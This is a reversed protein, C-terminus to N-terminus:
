RTWRRPRSAPSPRSPARNRVLWPRMIAGRWWWVVLVLALVPPVPRPPRPPPFSALMGFVGRNEFPQDPVAGAGEGVYTTTAEPDLWRTQDPTRFRATLAAVSQELAIVSLRDVRQDHTAGTAFAPLWDLHLPVSPQPQLAHIVVPTFNDFFETRGGDALGTTADDWSNVSWPAPGMPAFVHRLVADDIAALWRTFITAGPARVTSGNSGYPYYVNGDWARLRALAERAAPSLAPAGPRDLRLVLQRFFLVAPLHESGVAQMVRSLGTADIPGQALRGAVAQQLGAVRQAPGWVTGDASDPFNPAARNNWSAVFGVAPDVVSPWQSPPLYGRWDMSGDGRAPLRPDHGPARLPVAGTHWYGIHGGADDYIFNFAVPVRRVAADFAAVSHAHVIADFAAGTQSATNWFARTKSVAWGTAGGPDWRLAVIPSPIGAHRTRYVVETSARYVPPTVSTAVPLPNNVIRYRYTENREEVQRWSGDYLVDIHTGDRRVRELYTDVQDDQGTTITWAHDLTHGIVVVPGAGPVAAGGVDIGPAHLEMRFFVAPDSYGAQPGGYLLPGGFTTHSRSVAVANSGFHPLGLTSITRAVDNAHAAAVGLMTGSEGFSSLGAPIERLRALTDADTFRYVAPAPARADAASISTPTTPDGRFYWDALVGAAGSLPLGLRQLGAGVPLEQGGAEAEQKIELTGIALTDARTWPRIPLDALLTFEAPLRSPDLTDRRIIANVGDVYGDLAGIEEPTLHAGIDAARETATETDRRYQEDYRLESPGLLESLTGEAARRFAEMQFLRDEAEAVGAGYGLSRFDRAFVHASGTTGDRLITVGQGAPKEIQDGPLPADNSRLPDSDWRWALYDALRDCSHIGFDACNGDIQNRAFAPLSVNGDQGPPLIVSFGPSTPSATPAVMLLALVPVLPRVTM